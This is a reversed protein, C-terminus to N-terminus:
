LRSRSTYDGYGSALPGDNLWARRCAVEARLPPYDANDDEDARRAWRAVAPWTVHRGRHVHARAHSVDM